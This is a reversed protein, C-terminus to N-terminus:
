DRGVEKMERAERREKWGEVGEQDAKEDMEEIIFKDEVMKRKM